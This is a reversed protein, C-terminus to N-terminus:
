HKWRHIAEYDPRIKLIKDYVQNAKDFKKGDEYSKALFLLTNLYYWNCSLNKEKKEMLAIAKQFSSVADDFDGGIFLAYCYQL